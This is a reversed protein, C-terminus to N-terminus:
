KEISTTNTQLNDILFVFFIFFLVGSQREFMSETFGWFMYMLSLFFLLSNKTKVARVMILTFMLILFLLGLYGITATTQLYQQHSDYGYFDIMKKERFKQELENKFDGTGIGWFGNENIVENTIKWTWIRTGTSMYHDDPNQNGYFMEHYAQEFRIKLPTTYVLGGTIIIFSLFVIISKKVKNKVIAYFILLIVVNILFMLFGLKSLSLVIFFLSTIGIALLKDKNKNKFLQTNVILFICVVFFLLNFYVSGYTPHLIIQSDHFRFYFYQTFFHNLSGECVYLYTARILSLLVYVFGSLAFTKLYSFNKEKNSSFIIPLFFPFIFFSVKNQLVRNASDIDTSYLLAALYMLFFLVM